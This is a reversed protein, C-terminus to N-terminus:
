FGIGVAIPFDLLWADLTSSAGSFKPNMYSIKGFFSFFINANVFYAVGVQGYGGLGTAPDSNFTVAYGLKTALAQLGNKFQDALKLISYNLGGGFILFLSGSGRDGPVLPIAFNVGGDIIDYTFLDFGDRNSTSEASLNHRHFGAQFGFIGPMVLLRGGYFGDMYYDPQPTLSDRGVALQKGGLGFGFGGQLELNILPLRAPKAAPAPQTAPKAQEEAASGAATLLLTLCLLKRNM